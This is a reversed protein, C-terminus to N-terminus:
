LYRHNLKLNQNIMEEHAKERYIQNFKEHNESLVQIYQSYGNTSTQKVRHGLDRDLNHFIGKKLEAIFDKNQLDEIKKNTEQKTNSFGFIDSQYFRKTEKALDNLTQASSICTVFLM